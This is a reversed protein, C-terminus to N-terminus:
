NDLIPEPSKLNGLLAHRVIDGAEIGLEKSLGRRIELVAKAPSSSRRQDDTLPEAEVINIFTGDAKVFIIDLPVYTNRMWFSRLAENRFIFLMGENDALSKRYMLGKQRQADTLALEVSFVSQAQTSADEVYLPTTQTAQAWAGAAASVSLAVILLFWGGRLHRYYRLM